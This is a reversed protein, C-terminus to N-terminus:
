EKHFYFRLIDKEEGDDDRERKNQTRREAVPVEVCVDGDCGKGDSDSEGIRHVEYEVIYELVVLAASYFHKESHFVVGCTHTVVHVLRHNGYTRSSKGSFAVELACLGCESKDRLLTRVEYETCDAFFPSKEARSRHNQNVCEEDAADDDIGFM